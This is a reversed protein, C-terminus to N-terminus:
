RQVFGHILFLPFAALNTGFWGSHPSLFMAIVRLIKRCITQVGEVTPVDALMRAEQFESVAQRLELSLLLGCWYLVLLQAGALHEMSTAKDEEAMATMIRSEKCSGTTHYWSGLEVSLCCFKEVLHEMLDRTGARLCGNRLKDFTDFLRSIEIFLDLLPDKPTRSCELWPITKWQWEDLM